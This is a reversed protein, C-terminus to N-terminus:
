IEPCADRLWVIMLPDLLTWDLCVVVNPDGNLTELLEMVLRTKSHHVVLVSLADLPMVNRAM